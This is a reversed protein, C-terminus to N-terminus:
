ATKATACAGPTSSRSLSNLRRLIRRSLFALFSVLAKQRPVSTSATLRFSEILGRRTTSLALRSRARWSRSPSTAATNSYCLKLNLWDIFVLNSPMVPALRGDDGLGSMSGDSRLYTRTADADFKGIQNHAVPIRWFDAQEDIFIGHEDLRPTGESERTDAIYQLPKSTQPPRTRPGGMSGQKSDAWTMMLQFVDFPRIQAWPTQTLYECEPITFLCQLMIVTSDGFRTSYIRGNPLLRLQQHTKESFLPTSPASSTPFDVQLEGSAMQRMKDKLAGLTEIEDGTVIRGIMRQLFFSEQGESIRSVPMHVEFGRPTKKVKTLASMRVATMSSLWQQLGKVQSKYFRAERALDPQFGPVAGTFALTLFSFVPQRAPGKGRALCNYFYLAGERPNARSLMEADPKLNGKAAIKSFPTANDQLMEATIRSRQANPFMDALTSALARSRQQQDLSIIAM